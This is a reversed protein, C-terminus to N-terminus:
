KQSHQTKMAAHAKELQPLCPSRKNLLLPERHTPKLLQLERVRSRLSLLQPVRAQNGCLMHSRGPGFISGMGRANAPLSEDVAGGPFGMELKQHWSYQGSFM